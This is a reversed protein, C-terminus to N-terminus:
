TEVWSPGGNYARRLPLTTMCRAETEGGAGGCYYCGGAPLEPPVASPPLVVLMTRACLLSSLSTSLIDKGKQRVRRLVPSFGLFISSSMFSSSDEHCPTAARADEGRHCIWYASRM